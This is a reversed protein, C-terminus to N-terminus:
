RCCPASRSPAEAKDNCGALLVLGCLPLACRLPTRM